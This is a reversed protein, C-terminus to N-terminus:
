LPRGSSSPAGERAQRGGSGNGSGPAGGVGASAGERPTGQRADATLTGAMDGGPQDPAPHAGGDDDTGLM